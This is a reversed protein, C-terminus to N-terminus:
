LLAEDEYRVVVLFVWTLLICIPSISVNQGRSCIRTRTTNFYKIKTQLYQFMKPGFIKLSTYINTSYKIDVM